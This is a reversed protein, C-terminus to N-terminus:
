LDGRSMEHEERHGKEKLRYSQKKSNFLFNGFIQMERM